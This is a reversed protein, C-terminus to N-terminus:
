YSNFFQDFDFHNYDDEFRDLRNLDDDYEFNINFATNTKEEDAKKDFGFNTVKFMNKALKNDNLFNYYFPNSNMLDTNMQNAEEEKNENKCVNITVINIYSNVPQNFVHNQIIPQSQSQTQNRVIKEIKFPKRKKEDYSVNKFYDDVDNIFYNDVYESGNSSKRVKTSNKCM